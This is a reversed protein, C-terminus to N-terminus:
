VLIANAKVIKGGLGTADFAQAFFNTGLFTPSVWADIFPGSFKYGESGDTDTGILTDNADLVGDDNADFYFEVRQIAALTGDYVAGANFASLILPDNPDNRNVPINDFRLEEIWPGERTNSFTESVGIPASDPVARWQTGGSITNVRIAWDLGGFGADVETPNFVVITFPITSDALAHTLLKTQVSFNGQEFGLVGVVRETGRSLSVLFGTTKSEQPLEISRLATIGFTGLFLFSPTLLKGRQDTGVSVVQGTQENLLLISSKDNHDIDGVASQVNESSLGFEIVRQSRLSFQRTREDSQFNRLTADNATGHRWGQTVLDPLSDGNTDALHLADIRGPLLFQQSLLFTAGPGRDPQFPVVRAQLKITLARGRAIAIDELGDGNLDARVIKSQPGDLLAQDVDQSNISGTPVVPTLDAIIPVTDMFLRSELAEVTLARAPAGRGLRGDVSKM